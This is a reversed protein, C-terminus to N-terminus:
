TPTVEYGRKKTAVKTHILDIAEEILAGALKASATAEAERYLMSAQHHWDENIFPCEYQDYHRKWKNAEPGTKGSAAMAAASSRPGFRNFAVDMPSECLGCLVDQDHEHTGVDPMYRSQPPELKHSEM